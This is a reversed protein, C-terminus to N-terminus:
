IGLGTLKEAIEESTSETKVRYDEWRDKAWLEIRDGVGVVMAENKIQAYDRLYSPVMARGLQDFSVEVAGSLLYRSFSRADGQTLPLEKLKGWLQEWSEKTYLFLCGDLGRTVVAGSELQSRFKKPVSLRGKYDISHQYEGIFM